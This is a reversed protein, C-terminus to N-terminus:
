KAGLSAAQATRIQGVMRLRRAFNAMCLWFFNRPRRSAAPDLFPQDHSTEKLRFRTAIAEDRLGFVPAFQRWSKKLSVVLPVLFM